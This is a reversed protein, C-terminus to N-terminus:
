WTRSSFIENEIGVIPVAHGVNPFFAVRVKNEQALDASNVVALAVIVVAITGIGISISQRFKM